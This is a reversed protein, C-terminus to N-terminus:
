ASRLRAAAIAAQGYAIGGDNAPVVHHRYVVFHRARLAQAAEVALKRNQFVGGTLVVENLGREVRLRECVHVIITVLTAHFRAAIIATHTGRDREDVIARIAPRVDVRWPVTEALLFDYPAYAAADALAELEIAAQADYTIFQRLDLLSAVADFLRGVSSTLPAAFSNEAQAAVVQRQQPATVRVPALREDWGIEAARLYALAMRWPERIALEGGYMPVYDFHAAREYSAYNTVLFEGGWLRGDDGYGTGDFAIGIVPGDLGHEAMCSAVHAHHHQIAFRRHDPYCREAFGRSWYNPHLDHCVVEPEIRWLSCLREIMSLYESHVDYNELDGVYSSLVAQTGTALCFTNKLDAGCALLPLVKFPLRLPLPAYGRARRLPVEAGGIIQSVSDDVRTVIARGHWLVAAAIGTLSELAITDTTITPEASRNASTMVLAAPAPVDSAADILLRHLATYAFMVGIMSLGPNIAEAVAGPSRQEVLVIPHAPSRLLRLEAENVRAIRSLEADDRVMIALPKDGRKKWRRLREVADINRADCALHYGGVGKLAVIAGQSLLRRTRAIANERTQRINREVLELQPGCDHCAIPEAHFRRSEPDLYEIHCATCMPFVQMATCARDYPMANIISYRPGCNTCNIFPYRYRRDRPDDLERHCDVCLAADAPIPQMGTGAKSAIITFTQLDSTPEEAVRVEAILALPPPGTVLAALFADIQASDGQILAEVGIGANRVWGALGYRTALRHIFPRFGVGQVVGEVVVHRAAHETL